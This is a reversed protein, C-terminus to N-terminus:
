LLLLLLVHEGCIVEAMLRERCVVDMLITDNVQNQAYPVPILLWSGYGTNKTFCQVLIFERGQLYVAECFL